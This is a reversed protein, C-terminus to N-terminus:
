WGTLAEMGIHYIPIPFLFQFAPIDRWEFFPQSVQNQSPFVPLVARFVTTFNIRIM